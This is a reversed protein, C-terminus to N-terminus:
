CFHECEGFRDGLEHAAKVRRVLSTSSDAQLPTGAKAALWPSFQIATFVEGGDNYNCCDTKQDRGNDQSGSVASRFRM